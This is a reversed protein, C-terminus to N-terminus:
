TSCQLREKVKSIKRFSLLPSCSTCFYSKVAGSKAIMNLLTIRRSYIVGLPEFMDRILVNSWPLSSM